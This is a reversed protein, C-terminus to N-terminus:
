LLLFQFEFILAVYSGGLAALECVLDREVKSDCPIRQKWVGICLAWLGDGPRWNVAKERKAMIQGQSLRLANCSIGAPLVCCERSLPSTKGSKASSAQRKETTDAGIHNSKCAGLPHKVMQRDTLFQGKQEEWLTKSLATAGPWGVSSSRRPNCAASPFSVRSLGVALPSLHSAWM